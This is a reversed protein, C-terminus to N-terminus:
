KFYRNFLAEIAGDPAFRGAKVDALSRDLAALDEITLEYERDHGFHRAEVDAIFVALEEQVEQPWTSVRELLEELGARTM